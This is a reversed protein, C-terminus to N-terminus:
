EQSVGCFFDRPTLNPTRPPWEVNDQLAIVRNEGFVENLHDRVEILRYAPAGDQAWWLCIGRFLGELFQNNFHIALQPFAFETLM